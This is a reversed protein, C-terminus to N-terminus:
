GKGRGASRFTEEMMRARLERIRQLLLEHGDDRIFEKITRNPDSGASAPGTAMSHLESATREIAVDGAVMAAEMWAYLGRLTARVVGIPKGGVPALAQRVTTLPDDRRAYVEWPVKVPPHHKTYKSLFPRILKDFDDVFRVLEIFADVLRLACQLNPEVNGDALPPKAAGLRAWLESFPIDVTGADQTRAQVLETNLRAIQEDKDARLQEMESRLAEAEKSLQRKSATVRDLKSHDDRELEARQVQLLLKDHEAHAKHLEANKAVLQAEIDAVQKQLADLRARQEENIRELEHGRKQEAELQTTRRDLDAQAAKYKDDLSAKQETLARTKKSLAEVQSATGPRPDGAKVDALESLLAALLRYRSSEDAGALADRLPRIPDGSAPTESPGGGVQQKGTNM